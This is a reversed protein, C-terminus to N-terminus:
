FLCFQFKKRRLSYDSMLAGTDTRCTYYSIQPYYLLLLQVFTIQFETLSTKLVSHAGDAPQIPYHMSQNGEEIFLEPSCCCFDWNFCLDDCDSRECFVFFM